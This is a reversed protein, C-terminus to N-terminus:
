TLSTLYIKLKLKKYKMRLDQGNIQQSKKINNNKACVKSFLQRQTGRLSNKAARCHIAM